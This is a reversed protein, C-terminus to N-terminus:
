GKDTHYSSMQRKGDENGVTCYGGNGTENLMVGNRKDDRGCSAERYILYDKIKGTEYFRNWASREDMCNMGKGFIDAGIM